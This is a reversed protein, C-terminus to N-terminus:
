IWGWRLALNWVGSDWKNGASKPVRNSYWWNRFQMEWVSQKLQTWLGGKTKVSKQWLERFLRKWRFSRIELWNILIPLAIGPSCAGWLCVVKFCKELVLYLQFLNWILSVLQVQCLLSGRAPAALTHIVPRALQMIPPLQLLGVGLVVLLSLRTLSQPSKCVTTVYTFISFTCIAGM